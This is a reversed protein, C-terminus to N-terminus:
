PTDRREASNVVRVLSSYVHRRYADAPAVTVAGGAATHGLTYTKADVYGPSPDINRALIYLRVSVVNAWNKIANCDAPLCGAPGTWTTPDATYGDPAGDNDVDVGYEVNFEEIGEVLPTTVFGAGTFERRMLTPIAVGSGNDTSIYYMRVYYQRVGAVTACDKTHLTFTPAPVSATAGMTFPTLPTETACKSVQFYPQGAVVAPCTGVGAECTAVRRIVLVDEGAKANPLTCTGPVGLGTDYGQVAILLAAFWDTSLTSCPDPMAAPLGIALPAPITGPAASTPVGAKITAEGYFGAHRLDDTLIEIAYRGNEIQRASREMETRAASSNAFVSVLAGLVILGLTMAIMLEILSVGAMSRRPNLRPPM